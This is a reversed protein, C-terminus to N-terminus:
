AETDGTRRYLRGLAFHVRSDGVLVAAAAQLHQAANQLDNRELALNGLQLHSEGLTSDLKLAGEFQAEARERAGSEMLVVGLAQLHLASGPFKGVGAELTAIADLYMGAASQAM